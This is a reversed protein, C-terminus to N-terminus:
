SPIGFVVLLELIVSLVALLEDLEDLEEPGALTGCRSVCVKEGVRM